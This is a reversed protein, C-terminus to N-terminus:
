LCYLKNNEFISNSSIQCIHTTIYCVDCDLHLVKGNDEQIGNMDKATMGKEVVTAWQHIQIAVASRSVTAIYKIKRSDSVIFDCPIYLITNQTHSRESIVISRLNLRHNCM